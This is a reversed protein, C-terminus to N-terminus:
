PKEELLKIVAENLKAGRLNVHRIIGKRDLVYTSPIARIGWQRAISNQITHESLIPWTIGREQVAGQLSEEDKDLSVGVIELGQAQQEKYLKVLNPMQEMCPGCWPAWFDIMVVKGKLAALSVDKGAVDKAEIAFPEKGPQLREAAARSATIENEAADVRPGLQAYADKDLLEIKKLAVRAGAIDEKQVRGLVVLVWCAAVRKLDVGAAPATATALEAFQLAQPHRTQALLVAVTSAAEFGEATQPNDRAFKGYKEIALELYALIEEPPSDQGPRSAELEKQLSAYERKRGELTLPAGGPQLRPNTTDEVAWGAAALALVVCAAFLPKM